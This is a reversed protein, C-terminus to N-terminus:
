KQPIKPDYNWEVSVDFFTLSYTLSRSAASNIAKALLPSASGDRILLCGGQGCFITEANTQLQWIETEAARWKAEDLTQSADLKKLQFLIAKM